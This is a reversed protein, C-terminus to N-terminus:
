NVFETNVYLNYSKGFKEGLYRLINLSGSLKTSDVELVPVSGFPTEVYNNFDHM